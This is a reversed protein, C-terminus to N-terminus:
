RYYDEKCYIQGDRVFCTGASELVAKCECCRLCVAHWQKDVASLYYRDHINTGCGACAASAAVASTLGVGGAGAGDSIHM